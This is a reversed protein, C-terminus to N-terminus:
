ATAPLDHCSGLTSVIGSALTRASRPSEAALPRSAADGVSVHVPDNAAHPEGGQTGAPSV